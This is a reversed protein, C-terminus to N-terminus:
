VERRERGREVAVVSRALGKMKETGAGAAATVGSTKAMEVVRTVDKGGSGIWNDLLRGVERFSVPKILFLDVGAEFAESQDRASALGTLAVVLSAPIPQKPQKKCSNTIMDPPTATPPTSAPTSAQTTATSSSESPGGTMTAAAAAEEAAEANWRAEIERIQRTADFGNLVPMSIDMFIIEPPAPPNQQTLLQTYLSVADAGNQATYATPLPDRKLLYTRLLRLNVKNDDVLLLRPPRQSPANAAPTAAPTAYPSPTPMPFSPARNPSSVPEPLPPGETAIAPPKNNKNTEGNSDDAKAPFPFESQQEVPNTQAGPITGMAMQAAISDEKGIIEGQQLVRIEAGNDERPLTLHHISAAASLTEEISQETVTELGEKKGGAMRQARHGLVNLLARSLKYPGVPHPLYETYVDKLLSDTLSHKQTNSRSVLLAPADPAKSLIAPYAQLLAPLDFEDCGVLDAKVGPVWDLVHTFGYWEKMYHTITDRVSDVSIRTLEDIIRYDRPIYVAVTKGKSLERVEDLTTKICTENVGSSVSVPASSPTSNATTGPGSTAKVMPLTVFVETGIGVASTINVEGNLMEVISRVLSLGLGVGPNLNSEQAFPVFLKTNLYEPTIGQGSDSVTLTVISTAQPEQGENKCNSQNKLDKAELKVKVFGQKTYKLANGLLNMTIRRLAGPQTIFNWDRAEIDLIVEVPSRTIPPLSTKGAASPSTPLRQITAELNAIDKFVHGISVGEVVEETIAALDVTEYINFTPQAMLSAAHSSAEKNRSKKAKRINKEFTNIKSYDLVMNITDLLTRACSDATSVLSKQYSTTETADLLECSALIGHLPSRLEHSISGIFDSKQQDAVITALRAIETMVCSGFSIAHTLDPSHSLTRYDSSSYCFCATWRNLSEDWIPIFIIQRAGPFHRALTAAESKSAPKRGRDPPGLNFNSLTEEGSSGQTLGDDGFSYLKGRMHRRILKALDVPSLPIFSPSDSNPADTRTAESYALVEARESPDLSANASNVNAEPSTQIFEALAEDRPSPNDDQLDQLTSLPMKKSSVSPKGIGDPRLEAATSMFVVGGGNHLSLSELLLESARELTELRDGEAVRPRSGVESDDGSEDSDETHSRERDFRRIMQPGKAPSKPMKQAKGNGVPSRTKASESRASRSTKYDGLSSNSRTHELQISPNRKRKRLHNEPDVFAALCMNMNVSRKRDEKERKLELHSMVNAAMTTLFKLSAASLPERPRNDMAFLSGIAVGKKTRLPVGVYYRFHPPGQVFPLKNFREDQSLDLIEYCAPKGNSSKSRITNECLRGAKPVSACGAWIHDAVTTGSEADELDLTQTSEAVFYQTDRDILSIIARDTDLRLTTLQAFSTLVKDPVSGTSASRAAPSRDNFPLFYKYLERARSGDDKSGASSAPTTVIGPALNM